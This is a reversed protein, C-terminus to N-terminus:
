LGPMVERGPTVLMSQTPCYSWKFDEDLVEWSELGDLARVPASQLVDRPLLRANVAMRGSDNREGSTAVPTAGLWHTTCGCTTCRHFAIMKDGHAYEQTLGAAPLTVEFQEYYAWLAGYAHCITCNCSTVAGPPKPVVVKVAGCHCVAEVATM